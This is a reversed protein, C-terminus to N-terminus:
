VQTEIRQTPVVLIRNWKVPEGSLPQQQGLGEWIEDVLRTPDAETPFVERFEELREYSTSLPLRSYEAYRKVSPPENSGDIIDDWGDIFAYVRERRQPDSGIRAILYQIFPIGSEGRAAHHFPLKTRPM